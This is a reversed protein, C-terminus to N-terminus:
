SQITAKSGSQRSNYVVVVEDGVMGFSEYRSPVVVVQAAGTDPEFIVLFQRNTGEAGLLGVLSGGGFM